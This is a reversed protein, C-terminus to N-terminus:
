DDYALVATRVVFSEITIELVIKMFTSVYSKCHGRPVASRSKLSTINKPNGCFLMLSRKCIFFDWARCSNIGIYHHMFREYNTSRHRPSQCKIEGKFVAFIGCTAHISMFFSFSNVIACECSRM